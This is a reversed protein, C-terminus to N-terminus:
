GGFLKVLGFQVAKVWPSTSNSNSGHAEKSSNPTYPLRLTSTNKQSNFSNNDNCINDVYQSTPLNGTKCLVAFDTGSNSPLVYSENILRDQAREVVTNKDDLDYKRVLTSHYKSIFDNKNALKVCHGHSNKYNEDYYILNGDGCDICHIEVGNANIIIYDGKGANINFGYSDVNTQMAPRNKANLDVIKAIKNEPIKGTKCLIVFDEDNNSPLLYGPNDLRVLAREMTTEADDSMYDNIIDFNNNSIFISKEIRQVPSKKGKVYFRNYYIVFGDGCDICHAVADKRHVVLHDGKDGKTIDVQFEEKNEISSDSQCGECDEEPDSVTDNDFNTEGCAVCFKWFKDEQLTNCRLCFLKDNQHKEQIDYDENVCQNGCEPCFKANDPLESGCVCNSHKEVLESGCEVCFKGDREINCTQCWKSM